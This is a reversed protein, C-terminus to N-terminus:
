DGGLFEFVQIRQNYSDAVYIRDQAIFLGAPLWFKGADAGPAGFALLFLGKRDFIQVRNFVSDAVYINGESDVGVGKSQAFQGSGDAHTGFVLLPKGELDFAQIRFNMTDNVYLTGDRLFIHTPYNFEGAAKGRSGFSFLERGTWDLVVIRHRLTEAVYLRASAADFALGTPRKLGDAVAVSQGEGDFILVKGAVSDSVYIRDRGSAVGVPSFLHMGGARTIRDHRKEEMDFLHVVGAGPDAVVIRGREDVDVAYPRVMRPDETGVIASWLGAFFPKQFGLDRADRFSYLLKIRPQDPAAPWVMPETPQAPETTTTGLPACSAALTVFLLIVLRRRV